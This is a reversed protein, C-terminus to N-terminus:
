PVVEAVRGAPTRGQQTALAASRAIRVGGDDALLPLPTLGVGGGAAPRGALRVDFRQGCSRCTLQAGELRAGDFSAACGPCTDVYAYCTGALNILLLDAVPSGARLTGAAPVETSAVHVWDPSQPRRSVQLLPTPAPEVGEVEVGTLEPAAKLVAAEITLRVTATSSPCGQCSGQLRLRLVGGEGLGLVEVGGAHSGLYPRVEELAREVRTALDQPHLDHLILLSGILEDAALRELVAGPVGDASVVRVIRCLAEGYLEVTLRVAEEALERVPDETLEALQDLIRDLRAGVERADLPTAEQM